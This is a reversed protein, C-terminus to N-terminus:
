FYLVFAKWHHIMQWIQVDFMPNLPPPTLNVGGLMDQNELVGASIPNFIGVSASSKLDLPLDNCIKLPACQMLTFINCYAWIWITLKFTSLYKLHCSMYTYIYMCTMDNSKLIRYKLLFPHSYCFQKHMKLLGLQANKFFASTKWKLVKIEGGLQFNANWM